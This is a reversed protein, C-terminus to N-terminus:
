QLADGGAAGQACNTPCPTLHDLVFQSGNPGNPLCYVYNGQNDYGALIITIAGSQLGAWKGTNGANMWAATHAFILKMSRLNNNNLYIRLSDANVTFSHLDPAQQNYGPDEGISTVFSSIMQNAVEKTIFMSGPDGMRAGSHHLNGQTTQTASSSATTPTIDTKEKRCAAIVCVTLLLAILLKRNM